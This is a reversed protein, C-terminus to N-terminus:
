NALSRDLSLQHSNRHQLIHMSSVEGYGGGGKNCTRLSAPSHPPSPLLLHQQSKRNPINSSPIMYCEGQESSDCDIIAATQAQSHSALEEPDTDLLILICPAKTGVQLCTLDNAIWDMVRSCHFESHTPKEFCTPHPTQLHSPLFHVVTPYWHTSWSWKMLSFPIFTIHLVEYNLVELNLISGIKRPTMKFCFPRNQSIIPQM